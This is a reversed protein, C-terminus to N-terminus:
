PIIACVAICIVNGTKESIRIIIYSRESDPIFRPLGLNDRQWPRSFEIMIQWENQQEDYEVEEPRLNKINEESFL